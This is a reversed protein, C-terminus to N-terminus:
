SQGGALLGFLHKKVLLCKEFIEYRYNQHDRFSIMVRLFFAANSGGLICAV